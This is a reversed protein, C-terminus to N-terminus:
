PPKSYHNDQQANRHKHAHGAAHVTHTHARTRLHMICKCFTCAACYVPLYLMHILMGVFTSVFVMVEPIQFLGIPLNAPESVNIEKGGKLRLLNAWTGQVCTPMSERDGNMWLLSVWMGGEYTTTMSERLSLGGKWHCAWIECCLSGPILSLNNM